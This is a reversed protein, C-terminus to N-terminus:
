IKHNIASKVSKVAAKTSFQSVKHKKFGENAYHRYAVSMCCLVTSIFVVYQQRYRGHSGM